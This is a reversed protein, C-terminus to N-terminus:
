NEGKNEERFNLDKIAEILEEYKTKIPLAFYECISNCWYIPQFSGYSSPGTPEGEIEYDVATKDVVSFFNEAIAIINNRDSREQLLVMEDIRLKTDVAKNTANRKTMALASIISGVAATTVIEPTHKSVEFGEGVNPLRGALETIVAKIRNPTHRFDVSAGWYPAGIVLKEDMLGVYLKNSNYASKILKIFRGTHLFM